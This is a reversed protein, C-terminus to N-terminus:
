LELLRRHSVYLRYLSRIIADLHFHATYPLISWSLAEAALTRLCTKTEDEIHLKWPKGDVKRLFCLGASCAAPGLLIIAALITWFVASSPTLLWGLTLMTFLFVPTLSRRLNDAIKWRSLWSLPNDS